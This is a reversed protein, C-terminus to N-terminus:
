EGGGGGSSTHDHIIKWGEATKQFTLTFLGSPRDCERELSWAGFVLAARPSFVTIELNDFSLKGMAAKDPYGKKYRELTTQWGRRVSGGSAFRLSDSRWYGRMFEEINGTNWAEVQARLVEQVARQVSAEPTQQARTANKANQSSQTKASSEQGYLRSEGACAWFLLAFVLAFDRWFRTKIHSAIHSAIHSSLTM